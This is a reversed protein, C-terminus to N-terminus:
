GYGRACFTLERIEKLRTGDRTKRYGREQTLPECRTIQTRSPTVAHLRPVALSQNSKADKAVFVSVVVSDLRVEEEEEEKNRM